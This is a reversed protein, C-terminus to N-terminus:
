KQMKFYFYLVAIMPIREFMLTLWLKRGGAKGNNLLVDRYIKKQNLKEIESPVLKLPNTICINKVSTMYYDSCENVYAKYFNDTQYDIYTKIFNTREELVNYYINPGYKKTYCVIHDIRYRYLPEDIYKIQRACQFAYMNFVNDQMRHLNPNFKLDNNDLLQKRYLKGWPVGIATFIKQNKPQQSETKMLQLYLKEKENVTEMTYSKDFFHEVYSNDVDFGVCCCAVIDTKDEIHAYLKEVITGELYDDGDVMMVFSGEAATIGVNRAVSVGANKQYIYTIRNDEKCLEKIITATNDASGDDVVIIELNTYSQHMVSHLCNEIYKEVNYATVIVSILQAGKM